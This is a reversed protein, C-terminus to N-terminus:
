LFHVLDYVYQDRPFSAMANDLTALNCWWYPALPLLKRENVGLQSFLQIAVKSRLAKRRGTTSTTCVYVDSNEVM